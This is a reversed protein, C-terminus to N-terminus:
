NILNYYYYCSSSFFCSFYSSHVGRLAGLTRPETSKGLVSQHSM